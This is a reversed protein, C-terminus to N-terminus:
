GRASRCSPGTGPRRRGRVCGAGFRSQEPREGRDLADEAVRPVGSVLDPLRCRVSWSSMSGSFVVSPCRSTIAGADAAVTDNVEDATTPAPRTAAYRIAVEWQAGASKAVLQRLETAHAPDLKTTAAPSTAHLLWAAIARLRNPSHGAKVRRAARRARRLRAGVAPRALIQVLATEDEALGSRRSASPAATPRRPPRHATAPSRTSGAAIRRSRDRPQTPLRHRAPELRTHAGPWAADVARRVLTTGAGRHADVPAGDFGSPTFVYEFALHPQGERWRRWWPRALGALQAWLMVGGAPDVKPPALISICRADAVLRRARRERVRVRTAATAAALVALTPASWPWTGAFSALARGMTNRLTNPDTLFRGLPGGSPDAALVAATPHAILYHLM